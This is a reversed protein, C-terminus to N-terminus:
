SGPPNGLRLRNISHAWTIAPAVRMLARVFWGLHSRHTQFVSRRELLKYGIGWDELERSHRMGWQYRAELGRGLEFRAGFRAMTPALTDFVIQAGPFRGAVRALLTRVDDPHLYMLVGEAVLLITQFGPAVDDMWSPDLASKGIVRRRATERVFESRIRIVDPLDLDLCSMLGNDVRGFRNDLGEGINILLLHPDLRCCGRVIGDIVATRACAGAMTTRSLHLGEFDFDLAGATTVAYWDTLISGARRTESARAWLPVVMTLPIPELGHILERSVRV